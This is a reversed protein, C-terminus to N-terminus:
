GIFIKIILSLLLLIGIVILIWKSIKTITILKDDEEIDDDKLEEVLKVAFFKKDKLDETTKIIFTSTDKIEKFKVNKDRKLFFLFILIDASAGSLNVVSLILLLLSEFAFGLFYTVVGIYIFPNIVSFLINTRDVYEGCKCYFIGKELVMGYKIKKFKAGHFVYSLGHIIEHLVMWGFILIIVGFFKLDGLSELTKTGKFFDFGFLKYIGVTLLILLLTFIINFVNITLFNYEFKYIHEKKRSM